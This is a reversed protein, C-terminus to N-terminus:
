LQQLTLFKYYLGKRECLEEHTGEEVIEGDELVIIKTVSKITSLRHAIIFVTRKGMIKEIASQIIKESESDLSGTAEDFILIEPEKYIARAISILQKQGGSLNEGREGIITNEKEPFSDIFDKIGVDEIVEKFRKENYDGFTINDKISGYFIIPEQPVYGIHKRLSNQKFNKINEGDILIEGSTTDYFRLLLAVLTSKGSGTKGVIGIKEGKNIVFNINKLIFAQEYAFCVNKFEIKEKLGEFIKGDGNEIKGKYDLISFIRPLASSSHKLHAYTNILGKLPNIISFLSFFFLFLFGPTITGEIVKRGGYYILYSSAVVGSFEIFPSILLIRKNMSIIIKFINENDKRFKNIFNEEQNYAKIIKQGFISENIVNAIRGYTEQIARGLKRLKKTLNFVPMLIVPYIFISILSLKWDIIFIIFLYSIVLFIPFVFNPFFSELANSLIGVDYIVRTTLEGTQKKTFFDLSLNLFKTYIKERLETLIRTSFLKFFYNNLYFFLGKLFFAFIMFFILYKLILLPEYSNLKSIFGELKVGIFYPLNEPLTIKRRSLIRDLLPIITSLSITNLSISLLLFIIGIFFYRWNTKVYNKIKLYEKLM